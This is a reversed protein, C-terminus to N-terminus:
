PKPVPQYKKEVVLYVLTTDGINTVEHWAVPPSPGYAGAKAESVRTGRADRVQNKGGSLVYRFSGPHSHRLHVAGPPFTCRGIRIQDDEYLKECPKKGQWEVSFADPVDQAISLPALVMALVGVAPAITHRVM